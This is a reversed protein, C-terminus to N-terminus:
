ERLLRIQRRRRKARPTVAAIRLARRLQIEARGQTSGAAKSGRVSIGSIWHHGPSALPKPLAPGCNRIPAGCFFMSKGQAFPEPQGFQDSDATGPRLKELKNLWRRERIWRSPCEFARLQERLDRRNHPRRPGSETESFISTRIPCRHQVYAAAEVFLASSRTSFTAVSLARPGVVLTPNFQSLPREGAPIMDRTQIAFYGERASLRLHVPRAPQGFGLLRTSRAPEHTAELLKRCFCRRWSKSANSVVGSSTCAPSRKLPV